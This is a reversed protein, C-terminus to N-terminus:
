GARQAHGQRDAQEADLPARRLRRVSVISLIAVYYDWFVSYFDSM